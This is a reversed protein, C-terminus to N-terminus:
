TGLLERVHAFLAKAQLRSDGALGGIEAIERESLWAVKTEPEQVDAVWESVFVCDQHLHKVCTHNDAGARM